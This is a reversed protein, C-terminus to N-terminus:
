NIIFCDTTSGEVQVGLGREIGQDIGVPITLTGGGATENEKGSASMMM